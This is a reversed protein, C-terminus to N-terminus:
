KALGDLAQQVSGYLMELTEKQSKYLRITVRKKKEDKVPGVTKRGANPRHGGRTAKVTNM